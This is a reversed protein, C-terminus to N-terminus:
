WRLRSRPVTQPQGPNSGIPRSKKVRLRILVLELPLRDPMVVLVFEEALNFDNLVPLITVM